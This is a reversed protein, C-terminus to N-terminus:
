EGLLAAVATRELWRAYREQSWGRGVTLIHHLEPSGLASFTAAAEEVSLGSRLSRGDAITAIFEAQGRFRYDQLRRQLEDLERVGAGAARMVAYMPSTLGVTEATHRALATIQARLDPLELVERAWRRELAEEPEDDRLVAALVVAELLGAKSRYVAYVTEPAVAAADAVNAITTAAFGQVLFLARAAELIRGRTRQAQEARIASRYPRRRKVREGMSRMSSCHICFVYSFVRYLEVAFRDEHALAPKMDARALSSQDPHQRTLQLDLCSFLGAQAEADEPRRKRWSGAHRKEVHVAAVFLREVDEFTLNLELEALLLDACARAAGDKDGGANGVAKSVGAAVVHFLDHNPRGGTGDRHDLFDSLHCGAVDIPERRNELAVVGFQELSVRM